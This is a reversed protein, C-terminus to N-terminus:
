PLSLEQGKEHLETDRLLNLFSVHKSAKSFANSLLGFCKVTSKQTRLKM